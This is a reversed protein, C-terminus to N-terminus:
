LYFLCGNKPINELFFFFLSLLPIVNSSEFTFGDAGVKGVKGGGGDGVIQSTFLTKLQFKSLSIKPIITM